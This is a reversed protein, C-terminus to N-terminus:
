TGTQRTTGFSTHLQLQLRLGALTGLWALHWWSQCCSEAEYLGSCFLALVSCVLVDCMSWSRVQKGPPALTDDVATGITLTPWGTDGGLWTGGVQCTVTKKTWHLVFCSLCAALLLSRVQKGPPALTDDVATGITLTPWGTDGVMGPALFYSHVPLQRADVGPPVDVVAHLHVFNDSPQTM